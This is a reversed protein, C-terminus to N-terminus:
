SKEKSPKTSMAKAKPTSLASLARLAAYAIESPMKEEVSAPKGAESCVPCLAEVENSHEGGSEWWCSQEHGQWGCRGCEFICSYKSVSILFLAKKM